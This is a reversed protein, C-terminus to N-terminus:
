SGSESERPTYTAAGLTLGNEDVRFAVDAAGYAGIPPSFRLTDDDPQSWSGFSESVVMTECDEPPTEALRYEQFRYTSNSNLDLEFVVYTCILVGTEDTANLHSDWTGVAASEIEPGAPDGCGVVILALLVAAGTRVTRLANM